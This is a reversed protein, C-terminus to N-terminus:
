AAGPAAKKAAAKKALKEPPPAMMEPKPEVKVSELEGRAQMRKFTAILSAGNRVETGDPKVTDDILLMRPKGRRPTVTVIQEAM